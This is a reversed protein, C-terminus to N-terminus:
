TPFMLTIVSFSVTVVMLDLIPISKLLKWTWVLLHEVPKLIKNELVREDGDEEWQARNSMKKVDTIKNMGRMMKLCCDMANACQDFKHENRSPNSLRVLLTGRGKLAACPSLDM